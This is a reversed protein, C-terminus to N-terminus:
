ILNALIYIILFSFVFPLLKVIWYDRPKLKSLKDEHKKFEEQFLKM